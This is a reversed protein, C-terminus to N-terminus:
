TSLGLIVNVPRPLTVFRVLVTSPHIKPVIRLLCVLLTPNKVLCMLPLVMECRLCKTLVLKVRILQALM